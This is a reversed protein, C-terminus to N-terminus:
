GNSTEEKDRHISKEVKDSGASRISGGLMPQLFFRYAGFLFLCIVFIAGVGYFRYVVYVLNMVRSLTDVILIGVSDMLQSM